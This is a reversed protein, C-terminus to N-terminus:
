WVELFYLQLEEPLELFHFRLGVFGLLSSLTKRLTRATNSADYTVAEDSPIKVSPVPSEFM